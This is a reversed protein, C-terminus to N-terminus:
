RAQRIPRLQLVDRLHQHTAAPDGHLGRLMAIHPGGATMLMDMRRRRRRPRPRSPRAAAASGSGPRRGGATLVLVASAALALNRTATRM